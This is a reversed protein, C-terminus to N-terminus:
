RIDMTSPCVAFPQLSGSQGSSPALHGSFRLKVRHTKIELLVPASVLGNVSYSTYELCGVQESAPSSVM